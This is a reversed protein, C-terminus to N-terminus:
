VVAVRISDTHGPGAQHSGALIMVVDGSRIAGASRAADIASLLVQETSAGADTM